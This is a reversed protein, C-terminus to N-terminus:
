WSSKTVGPIKGSMSLDRVMNRCLGFRRFVGRGRGTIACRSRVRVACSDRPLKQMSRLAAEKQEATAHASKLVKRLEDRRARYKEALKIRRANRNLVAKC